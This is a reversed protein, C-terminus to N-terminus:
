RCGSSGPVPKATTLLFANTVAISISRARSFISTSYISHNGKPLAIHVPGM